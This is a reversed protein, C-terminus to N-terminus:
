RPAHVISALWARTRMLVSDSTVNKSLTMQGCSACIGEPPPLQVGLMHRGELPTPGYMAQYLKSAADSDKAICYTLDAANIYVYARPYQRSFLSLRADIWAEARAYQKM